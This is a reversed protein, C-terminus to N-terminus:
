QRYLSNYYEYLYELLSELVDNLRELVSIEMNGSLMVYELVDFTILPTTSSCLSGEVIYGGKSHGISNVRYYPETRNHYWHKSLNITYVPKKTYKHILQLQLGTTCLYEEHYSNCLTLELLYKTGVKITKPAVQFNVNASLPELMAVFSMLTDILHNEEKTFQESM